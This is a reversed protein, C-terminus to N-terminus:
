QTSCAAERNAFEILDFEETTPEQYSDLMDQVVNKPITKGTAVSRAFLRQHLVPLEIEFVNAFKVYHRPVQGLWRRRGKMRLNTRDVIIDQGTAAAVRIRGAMVSELEKMDISPYMETYTKGLAAAREEILDDSSVVITERATAALYAKIWTSKGSGPLGVPMIFYPARDLRRGIKVFREELAALEREPLNAIIQELTKM